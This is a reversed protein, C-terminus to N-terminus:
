WGCKVASCMEADELGKGWLMELGVADGARGGVISVHSIPELHYEQIRKLPLCHPCPLSLTSKSVSIPNRDQAFPKVLPLPNSHLPTRARM